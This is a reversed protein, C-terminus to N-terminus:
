WQGPLGINEGSEQYYDWDQTNGSYYDSQEQTRVKNKIKKTQKKSFLCTGDTLRGVAQEGSKVQRGKNKWQKYTRYSM